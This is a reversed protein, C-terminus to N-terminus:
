KVPHQEFVLKLDLPRKERIAAEWALEVYAMHKEMDRLGKYTNLRSSGLVGPAPIGDLAEIAIVEFNGHGFIKQLKLTVTAVHDAPCYCRRLRKKLDISGHVSAEGGLAAGEKHGAKEIKGGMGSTDFEFLVPHNDPDAHGGLRRLSDAPLGKRSDLERKLKALEVTFHEKDRRAMQQLTGDGPVEVKVSDYKNVINDLRAIQQNLEVDSLLQPNYHALNKSVDAYALSTGFGSEGEGISVFKKHGGRPTFKPGEGTSVDINRRHLEDAPLIDGDTKGLGDLMSSGTGHFGMQQFEGIERLAIVRKRHLEVLQKSSLGASRAPTVRGRTRISDKLAALEDPALTASVQRYRVIFADPDSDLIDTLEDSLSAVRPSVAGPAAGASRTGTAPGNPEPTKVGPGPGARDPSRPARRTAEGATDAAAGAVDGAAGGAKRLKSIAEAPLKVARSAGRAYAVIDGAADLTRVVKIIGAFRGAAQIAASGGMTLFAILAQMLIYGIVEGHFEGRDFDNEQTWKDAIWSGAQELLSPSNKFLTVLKSGISQATGILGESILSKVLDYLLGLLDVVGMVLDRAAAYAGELVGVIFGAGYKIFEVFAAAADKAAEWATHSISGGSIAGHKELATVFQQSPIWIAHNQKPQVSRWIALTKELQESRVAKESWSLDGGVRLLKGTNKNAEWIAEVYLRADAGWDFGRKPKYHQAAIDKLMEGPKVHHLHATPEPPDLEVYQGEVCGAGTVSGGERSDGMSVVYYWGHATRREVHVLTDFPLISITPADGSPSPRLRLGRPAEVRGMRGVSTSTEGLVAHWTDEKGGAVPGSKAERTDAAAETPAPAERLIAILSQRTATALRYQFLEALRDGDAPQTLRPLLAARQAPSMGHFTAVLLQKRGQIAKEDGERVSGDLVGCLYAEFPQALAGPAAGGTAPAGTGVGDDLQVEPGGGQAEIGSVDPQGFSAKIPDLFSIPSGYGPGVGEPARPAVGEREDAVPGRAQAPPLRSTLTRKGPSVSRAQVQQGTEKGSQGSRGRQRPSM